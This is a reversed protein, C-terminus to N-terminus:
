QLVREIQEYGARTLYQFHPSDKLDGLEEAQLLTDVDPLYELLDLGQDYALEITKFFITQQCAQLPEPGQIQHWNDKKIAQCWIHLKLGTFDEDDKAVFGLLDLAKKFDYENSNINHESTYLQILQKATLPPMMDLDLEFKQLVENPLSEQHLLLTQEDILEQIDEDQPSGDALAALKSLSLLTRKKSFSDTERCALRKLTQHAKGFSNMQIDHLWSLHDHSDLFESLERQQSQPLAQSLLKGRKGEDLYWKFVFDTFGKEAFQNMYRQLREQNNTDECLKVLINFDCYKEALSAARELQGHEVFPIILAYRQQEYNHLIEDYHITEDTNRDKISELQALYGDLLIDTLDLLQQFLNGRWQVDDTQNVGYNLIINHQRSIIARMGKPGTSATWPLFELHTTLNNTSQYVLAKSQRYQWAEHLMGELIANVNSILTLQDHIAIQGNLKDQEYDMLCEMIEHIRSVERYFVDQPTLGSPVRTNGRQQLVKRIAADVVTPYATHHGRLSIAAMLKEAHECLIQHTSMQHERSMVTSLRDWLGTNKLFSLFYDHAKLKDELQHLLILSTTSSAADHPVSEAWRPDSAPFDDIIERSLTTVTTDIISSSDETEALTSTRFLDDVISQAQDLNHRCAQLFASKLRQTSDEGVSMDETKEVKIMPATLMSESAVSTESLASIDHGLTRPEQSRLSVLGHNNSFFIPVKGYYGSGLLCDGPSKFDIKDYSATKGSVTLCIIYNDSYMYATKSALDSILLCHNLLNEEMSEEYRVSYKLLAFSMAYLPADSGATDFTGVAYHMTPIAAKTDYAAGLVAIGNRVLQMDLMWVKIQNPDEIGEVDLEQIFHDRMMKEVQCEFLIKESKGSLQWKQVVNGTLAYFYYDDEGDQSEETGALVCHAALHTLQSRQSGFIFSSVRSFMGKNPNLQHWSITNQMGSSSPSLLLLQNSTTALIYGYPQHLQVATLSFCEEGSLDAATEVFAGENALSPWYRIIGDPSVAMVTITPGGDSAPLVSVLDSKHSLDSPPLPLEKCLSVRFAQTQKYRWVFLRRGCVVWAWGNPDIKVSTETARDALTLAETILVPLATGFSEVVYQSSEEIVLSTQLASKNLASGRSIFPTRKGTSFIGISRRGSATSKSGKPATFPSYVSRSGPARPTFM